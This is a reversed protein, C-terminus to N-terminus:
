QIWRTSTGAPLALTRVGGTGNDDSAETSWDTGNPSTRIKYKTAYHSGWTITVHDVATTAGLDVQWQQPKDTSSQWVTGATCDDANAANATNSTASASRGCALDGTTAANAHPGTVVTAVLVGTVAAASGAGLAARRVISPM